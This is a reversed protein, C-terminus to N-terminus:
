SSNSHDETRHRRSSKKEGGKRQVGLKAGGLEGADISERGCDV